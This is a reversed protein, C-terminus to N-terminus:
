DYFNVNQNLPGIHNVNNRIDKIKNRIRWNFLYSWQMQRIYWYIKKRLSLGRLESFTVMFDPEVLLDYPHLYIIPLLGQEETKKLADLMFKIPLIKYYSGGLKVNLRNFFISQSAVPLERFSYKNNNEWISLEEVSSFHLSSDYEFISEIVRFRASDSKHISFRPARFGCVKQGATQELLDKANKLNEQLVDTSESFVDDHFYNHCAIEHGENAIRQILKPYQKAVIGTCFFTAKRKSLNEGVYENLREYAINLAEERSKINPIIGLARGLDYSSNELDITISCNM